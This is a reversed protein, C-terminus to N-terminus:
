SPQFICGHLSMSRGDPQRSAWPLFLQRRSTPLPTPVPTAMGPPALPQLLVRWPGTVEDLRKRVRWEQYGDARISMELDSLTNVGLCWTEFDGVSNSFVSSLCSSPTWITFEAEPVGPQDARSGDVVRGYIRLFPQIDPVPTLMNPSQPQLEARLRIPGDGIGPAGLQYARQWPQFYLGQPSSPDSVVHIVVQSQWTVERCALTFSGDAGTAMATDCRGPSALVLVRAGPVPPANPTSGAVVAGSVELLDIVDAPDTPSPTPTPSSQGPALTPIPACRTPTPVRSWSELPAFWRDYLSQGRRTSEWTRYGPVSVRVQIEEGYNAHPCAVSFDGWVDSFVPSRCNGGAVTVRAGEIAPHFINNPDIVGGHLILLPLHGPPTPTPQPAPRQLEARVELVGTSTDVTDLRIRRSWLEHYEFYAGDVFVEIDGARNLLRCRSEFRGDEGIKPDTKECQGPKAFVYYVAWPVPIGGAGAEVAQGRVALEPVLEPIDTTYPKPTPM